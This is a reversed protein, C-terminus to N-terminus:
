ESQQGREEGNNVEVTNSTENIESLNDSQTDENNLIAIELCKLTDKFIDLAIKATNKKSEDFNESSILYETTKKSTEFYIMLELIREKTM